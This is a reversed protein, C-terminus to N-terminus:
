ETPPPGLLRVEELDMGAQLDRLVIDDIRNANRLDTVARRKHELVGLRLRRELDRVDAEAQGDESDEEAQLAQAYEEYEARVRRMLDDDIGLEAAVQPLANLGAQAARVRALQLEEARGTDEPLRAWRIVAPLTTGQVLITLLIVVSTTFIILDRDPFSEGNGLSAPVALAAALSVAGRFGAWGSATRQRWGVRRLRQAPRRDLTRVVLTVAHVWVLRTVVVVGTVTLAVVIAHVATVDDM